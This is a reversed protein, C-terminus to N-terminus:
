IILTMAQKSLGKLCVKIANKQDSTGRLVLILHPKSLGLFRDSLRPVGDDIM